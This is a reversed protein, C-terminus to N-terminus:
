DNITNNGYKEKTSKLMILLTRSFHITNWHFDNNREFDEGKGPAFDKKSAVEVM